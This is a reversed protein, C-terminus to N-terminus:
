GRERGSHFLLCRSFRAFGHLGGVQMIDMATQLSKMKFHKFTLDPKIDSLDLTMRFKGNPKPKLFINSIYQGEIAECKELVKLLLLRPIEGDLFKM